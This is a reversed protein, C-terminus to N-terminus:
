TAPCRNLSHAPDPLDGALTPLSNELQYEWGLISSVWIFVFPVKCTRDYFPNLPTHRLLLSCVFSYSFGNIPLAGLFSSYGEKQSASM